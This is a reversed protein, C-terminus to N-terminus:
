GPALLWVSLAIRTFSFFICSFQINFSNIKRVVYGWFPKLAMIFCCSVASTPVGCRGSTWTVRTAAIIKRGLHCILRHGIICICTSMTQKTTKLLQWTGSKSHISYICYNQYTDMNIYQIYLYLCVDYLNMCSLYLMVMTSCRPITTIRYNHRGFNHTPLYLAGPGLPLLGAAADLCGHNIPKTTTLITIYTTLVGASVIQARCSYPRPIWMWKDNYM